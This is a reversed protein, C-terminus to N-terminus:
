PPMYFIDWFNVRPINRYAGMRKLITAAGKKRGLWVRVVKHQVGQKDLSWVTSQCMRASSRPNNQPEFGPHKTGLISVSTSVRESSCNCRMKREAPTENTAPWSFQIIRGSAMWHALGLACLCGGIKSCTIIVMLFHQEKFSPNALNKSEVRIM